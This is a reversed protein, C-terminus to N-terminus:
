DSFWIELINISQQLKEYVEEPSSTQGESAWLDITVPIIHALIRHFYTSNSALDIENSLKSLPLYKEQIKQFIDLHGSECLLHIFDKHKSLECIIHIIMEKPTNGHIDLLISQGMQDCAYELIDVVNDFLRYFTTRSIGYNKSLESVTIESFSKHKSCELLANCIHMASKRARVDNSIHYM